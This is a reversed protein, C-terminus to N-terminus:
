SVVDQFSFFNLAQSACVKTSSIWSDANRGTSDSQDSKTIAFHLAKQLLLNSVEPPIISLCPTMSFSCVPM